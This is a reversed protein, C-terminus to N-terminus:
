ELNFGLTKGLSFVKKILTVGAYTKIFAEITIGLDAAAFEQPVYYRRSHSDTEITGSDQEIEGVIIKLLTSKGTGNDGVICTRDNDTCKFSVNELVSKELFSHSINKLSITKAM